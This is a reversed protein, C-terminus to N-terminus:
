PIDFVAVTVSTVASYDVFAVWGPQRYAPNRGVAILREAGAPVAITRDAVALDTDVTGPTPITVTVPSGSGNKVHLVRGNLLQFSNGSANAPEYAPALGASTAKQPTIATRPM